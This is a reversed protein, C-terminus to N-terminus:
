QWAEALAGQLPIGLEPQSSAFSPVDGRLALPRLRGHKLILFAGCDVDLGPLLEELAAGAAEDLGDTQLLRQSLDALMKQESKTSVLQATADLRRLVEEVMRVYAALSERVDERFADLREHELNLVARVSGDIVIPLALESRTPQAGPAAMFDPDKSTDPVYQSEGTTFARGTVTTFPISFDPQVIWRWSTHLQLGDGGPVFVEAHTFPLVDSLLRPANRFLADVDASQNIQVTAEQLLQAKRESQRARRESARWLVFIQQGAVTALSMTLTLLAYDGLAAPRGAAASALFLLLLALPALVVGAQWGLGTIAVLYPVALLFGQWLAGDVLTLSATFLVTAFLSLGLPGSKLRLRSLRGPLSSRSLRHEV